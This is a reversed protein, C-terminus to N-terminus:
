GSCSGMQSANAMVTRTKDLKVKLCGLTQGEDDAIVYTVNLQGPGPPVFIDKAGPALAIDAASNRVHIPINLDNTIQVKWGPDTPDIPGFTNELVAGIIGVALVSALAVVVAVVARRQLRLTTTRNPTM